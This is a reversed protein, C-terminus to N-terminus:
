RRMQCIYGNETPTPLDASPHFQRALIKVLCPEFLKNTKVVAEIHVDVYESKAVFLRVFIPVKERNIPFGVNYNRLRLSVSRQHNLEDCIIDHLKLVYSQVVAFTFQSLCPIPM